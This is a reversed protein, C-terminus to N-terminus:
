NERRSTSAWIALHQNAAEDQLFIDKRVELVISLANLGAFFDGNGGADPALACFPNAEPNAGVANQFAQLDFFFPDDRLGAFVKISDGEATEGVNGSAAAGSPGACAFTGAAEFTCRIDRDTGDAMRSVHFDYNVADSFAADAGAQPFVTMILIIKAPDDPAVFAYLDNIDAAPEAQVSPSDLHDAALAPVALAAVLAGTAPM